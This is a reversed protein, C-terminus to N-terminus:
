SAYNYVIQRHKMIIHQVWINPQFIWSKYYLQWFSPWGFIRMRLSRSLHKVKLSHPFHWIPSMDLSFLEWSLININIITHELNIRANGHETHSGVLHFCSLHSTTFRSQINIIFIMILNITIYDLNVGGISEYHWRIHKRHIYKM